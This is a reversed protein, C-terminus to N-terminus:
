PVDGAVTVTVEMDISGPNALFIATIGSTSLVFHGEKAQGIPAIPIVPNGILNLRLNIVGPTANPDKANTRIILMKASSIDGLGIQTDPAAAALKFKWSGGDSLDDTYVEYAVNGLDKDEASTSSVSAEIKYRSRVPM